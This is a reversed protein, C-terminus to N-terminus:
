GNKERKTYKEENKDLITYDVKGVACGSLALGAGALLLFAAKLAAGGNM